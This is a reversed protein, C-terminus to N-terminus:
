KILLESLHRFFILRVWETRTVQTEKLLRVRQSMGLVETTRFCIKEGEEVSKCMREM